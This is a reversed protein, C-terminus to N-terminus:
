ALNPCSQLALGKDLLDTHAHCAKSFLLTLPFNEAARHACSPHKLRRLATQCACCARPCSSAYMAPRVLGGPGDVWDLMAGGGATCPGAAPM